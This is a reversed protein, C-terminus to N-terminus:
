ASEAQPDIVELVLRGREVQVHVNAGVTFGARELWRGQLRLFPMPALSGLPAQSIPQHYSVKLRRPNM